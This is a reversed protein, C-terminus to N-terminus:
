TLYAGAELNWRLHGARDGPLYSGGVLAQPGFDLLISGHTLRTQGLFTVLSQILSRAVDGRRKLVLQPMVVAELAIAPHTDQRKRAPRDDGICAIALMRGEDLVARGDTRGFEPIVLGALPEVQQDGKLHLHSVRRGLCVRADDPYIYTNARRETVLSVLPCALKWEPFRM